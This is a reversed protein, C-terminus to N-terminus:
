QEIEWTVGDKTDKILIGIETLQNRITDALSWNKETKADHRLKLIIEMLEDALKENNSENMEAKMGLIDFFFLRFYRQLLELDIKQLSAKGDHVTNIIRVADFLEAILKSSNFDDNMAEYAKEVWAAINETSLEAAKLKDLTNMAAYLKQMGKEAAILADNSFDLTSRYHAQLIFFRITMPSFPQSLLPHNGTFFQNLTIFNNLSKGM